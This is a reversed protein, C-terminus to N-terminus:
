QSTNIITHLISFGSCLEPDSNNKRKQVVFCLISSFSIILL